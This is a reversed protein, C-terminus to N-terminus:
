SFFIDNMYIQAQQTTQLHKHKYIGKDLTKGNKSMKRPCQFNKTSKGKRQRM